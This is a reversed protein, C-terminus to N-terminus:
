RSLFKLVNRLSSAFSPGFKKCSQRIAEYSVIVGREALLAEIDRFCLCFRHYLSVSHNIRGRPTRCGRYQSPSHM